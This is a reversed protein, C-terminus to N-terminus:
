WLSTRGAFYLEFSVFFLCDISSSVKPNAVAVMGCSESTSKEKENKLNKNEKASQQKPVTVLAPSGSSSQDKEQQPKVVEEISDNAKNKNKRQRKKASSSSVTPAKEEVISNSVLGASPLQQNETGPHIEKSKEKRQKKAKKSLHEQGGSGLMDDGVVASLAEHHPCCSM